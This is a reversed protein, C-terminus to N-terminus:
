ADERGKALNVIFAILAVAAMIWLGHLLLLYLAVSAWYFLLLPGGVTLLILACLAVLALAAGLIKM